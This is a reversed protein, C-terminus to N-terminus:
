LDAFDGLLVVNRDDLVRRQRARQVCGDFDVLDDRLLM